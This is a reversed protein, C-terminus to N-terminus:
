FSIKILRSTVLNDKLIEHRLFYQLKPILITKERKKQMPSLYKSGLQVRTIDTHHDYAIKILGESVANTCYVVREISLKLEKLVRIM